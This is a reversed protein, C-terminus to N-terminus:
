GVGTELPSVVFEFRTDSNSDNPDVPSLRILSGDAFLVELAWTEDDSTSAVTALSKGVLGLSQGLNRLEDGLYEFDNLTAELGWEDWVTCGINLFFRQWQKGEPKIWLIDCHEADREQWAYVGEVRCGELERSIFDTHQYLTGRPEDPFRKVIVEVGSGAFELDHAIQEFAAVFARHGHAELAEINRVELICPGLYGPGRASLAHRLADLNRGFADAGRPSVRAVYLSWFDAPTTIKSCELVFHPRENGSGIASCMM